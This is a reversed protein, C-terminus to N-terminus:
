AADDEAFTEAQRLVLEVASAEADPPYGHRALLRKIKSRLRAQVQERISWDVAKDLRVATVLDQAIEALAGTTMERVASENSSVADYFALEDETLGLEKARGRDASVDKAMEVLVSIIEASALAGNTYRRMTELLRDSFAQQRIMNHPHVARIEREIARRLAEVSLEPRRGNRLRTVFAEDLHSLDPKELGAAAYIDVVDDVAIAGATLQRVLLEVEAPGSIGREAREEADWKALYVRVTEFFAIDDVLDDLERAKPRLSFARLLDHAARTFRQQATPQNEPRDPEPRKLYNAVDVAAEHVAKPRGSDRVARWDIGVLQAVLVGHLERVLDLVEGTERGIPKRKRDSVTYDALARTLDDAIGLYDVVLGSPKEGFRRNVRALAQMLSAGRMPKDLYLTHLPPADFGTLWLSQVIVLELNDEPDTIRKKIARLKSPTRVHAGVPPKEGPTGTYAVKIIGEGDDAAAWEPRLKIIEDYLLACIRRTYGVIMGKGPVGTLKYMQQRRGEWHSVIDQALEQLREPAGIVDEYIKSGRAFRSLEDSDLDATLEEMREDLDSVKVGTPLHVPIHRSEYFVPVTAGDDVARTLDYIDIYDGFVAETSAEARSIPTGTFAIFSAHPLADHLSRALGDIFDYHSRHAEDVVVILNRRQSLVPHRRGADREAKTLSFKQLTSFIIGGSPRDLETRLDARTLAQNPTEPLLRSASFTEYLQSDLDIRDTLMLVTPNALAPHRSVQAAYFEMEKSKGSGQTHWVVGVRGDTAVAQVTAAVAQSVAHFQHAKALRVTDVAGGNDASFSVFNAILDLFREPEFMGAILTELANGARVDVRKGHEDVNWPAMHEWPSFPTGARATVGDSAVAILPVAFGVVGFERRYTQLQRYATESDDETDAKKLEILALPLGNVYCVIDFRRSHKGDALRVQNVAVFENAYPDNFDIAWVTPNREAAETDTYSIRVGRTLLEHMRYNEHLADQSRRDLLQALADDLATAPIGPNISGLAARLRMTMILEDWRSREGTRPAIASGDLHQWSWGALEDLAHAEWDAESMGV